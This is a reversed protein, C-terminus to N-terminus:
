IGGRWVRMGVEHEMRLPHGEPLPPHLFPDRYLNRALIKGEGSTLTLLIRRAPAPDFTLPAIDACADPGLRFVAEGRELEDGSESIVIWEATCEGLGDLTDNVAQLSEPRGRHKMFIGISASSEELAKLGGGIGETKSCGRYDYVGCFSQPCLDIWMFQFYGSCSRYKQIRYYYVYYKILRYQYDHLEAVRPLVDKLRAAMRPVLRTRQPAPPVNVGFETSLKEVSGYIDTYHGGGLSGRYDHGDDSEPDDKYCSNRITPRGPDLRRAAEVIQPGPRVYAHFSNEEWDAENMCIWCLVAPHNYLKRIMTEFAPVARGTFTEYRPFLWNLDSGQFVAVGMRDCIDYFIDNEVHVHIRFANIAARVAAAIDRKYRGRDMASLYIDPFYTAGHLFLPQGNLLFTTEEPTRRVEVARVSFAVEASAAKRGEVSLAAELRYLAPGGRGWTSWLRPSDLFLAAELTNAGAKLRVAQSFRAAGAGEPEILILVRLEAEMEGQSRVVPWAAAIEARNAEFDIRSAVAPRDASRIGEHVILRVPRWFGVPNVDRQVFTDAHEYTGKIMNRVVRWNQREPEFDADWPSSVKVVLVDPSDRSLLRGVEFEFSEFYGEHDGLLTDNLWVRAYHDVGEFRLAAQEAGPPTEFELRYWWPAQNFYRLERGFYPQDALLLQLYALRDISEWNSVCPGVQYPNWDRKDIGLAEGSDHVDQLIRWGTNLGINM